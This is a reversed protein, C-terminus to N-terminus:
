PSYLSSIYSNSQLVHKTYKNKHLQNYIMYLLKIAHKCATEKHVYKYDSLKAFLNLIHQWKTNNSKNSYKLIQMQIIHKKRSRILSNFQLAFDVKSIRIQISVEMGVSLARVQKLSILTNGDNGSHLISYLGSAKM